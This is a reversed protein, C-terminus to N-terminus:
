DRMVPPNEQYEREKQALEEAEWDPMGAGPEPPLYVFERLAVEEAEHPQYYLNQVLHNIQDQALKARGQITENLVGHDKLGKWERPRYEKLHRRIKAELGITSM